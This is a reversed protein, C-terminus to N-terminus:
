YFVYLLMMELDFWLVGGEIKGYKIGDVKTVLLMAFVHV